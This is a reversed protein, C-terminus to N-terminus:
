LAHRNDFGLIHWPFQVFRPFLNENSETTNPCRIIVSILLYPLRGSHTTFTLLCHTSKHWCNDTCMCVACYVVSLQKCCNGCLCKTNGFVFPFQIIRSVYSESDACRTFASMSCTKSQFITNSSLFFVWPSLLQQTITFSM